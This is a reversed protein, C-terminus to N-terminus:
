FGRTFLKVTNNSSSIGSVYLNVGSSALTIGNIYLDVTNNYGETTKIYLPITHFTGETRELYLPMTGSYPVSGETGSPTTIYLPVSGSYLVYSNQVFLSVGSSVLNDNYLYLNMSANNSIPDHCDIFLPIISDPSLANEMYLPVSSYLGSNASSFTYLDISGSGYVPNNYIYLPFTTNQSDIGSISLDIGSSAYTGGVIYLDTTSTSSGIAITYLDLYGTQLYAGNVYLNVGSNYSDYGYTYLPTIGSSIGGITYLDVTGSSAPTEGTMILPVIDGSSYYVDISLQSLTFGSPFGNFDLDFNKLDVGYRYTDDHTNVGSLYNKNLFGLYASATQNTGQGIKGTFGYLGLGQNGRRSYMEICAHKADYYSANTGLKPTNWSYELNVKVSNVYFLDNINSNFAASVSGSPYSTEYSPASYNILPQLGSLTTNTFADGLFQTAYTQTPSKVTGGSLAVAPQSTGITVGTPYIRDSYVATYNWNSDSKAGSYYLNLGFVTTGGSADGDIKLVQANRQLRRYYIYELKQNTTLTYDFTGVEHGFPAFPQSYILIDNFYLFLPGGSFYVTGQINDPVVYSPSLQFTGATTGFTDLYISSPAIESYQNIDRDILDYVYNGQSPIWTGISLDRILHIKDVAM